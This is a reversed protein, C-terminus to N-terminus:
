ADGDASCHVCLCREGEEVKPWEHGGPNTCPPPYGEEEGHVPCDVSQHTPYAQCDCVPAAPVPAGILALVEASLNGAEDFAEFHEADPDNRQHLWLPWPERSNLPRYHDYTVGDIIVTISGCRISGDADSQFTTFDRGTHLIRVKPIFRETKIWLQGLMKLLSGENFLDRPIVRTYTM